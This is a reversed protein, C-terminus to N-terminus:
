REGGQEIGAERMFAGLSKKVITCRAVVRDFSRGGAVCVVRKGKAIEELAAQAAGGGPRDLEPANFDALRIKVWNKFYPKNSVCITDGDLVAHVTGGFTMGPRPLAGPCPNQDARAAGAEGLAAFAFTISAFVIRKM